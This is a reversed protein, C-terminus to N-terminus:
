NNEGGPNFGFAYAHLPLLIQSLTLGLLTARTITKM